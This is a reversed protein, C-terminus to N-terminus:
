VAGRTFREWGLKAARREGHTFRRLEAYPPTGCHAQYLRLLAYINGRGTACVPVVNLGGDPGGWERPWIHHLVVGHPKPKHETHVRCALDTRDWPLDALKM